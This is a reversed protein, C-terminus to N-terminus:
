ESEGSRWIRDYVGRQKLFDICCPEAYWQYGDKYCYDSPYFVGDAPIPIRMEPAKPDNEMEILKKYQAETIKTDM